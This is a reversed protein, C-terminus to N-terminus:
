EVEDLRVPMYMADGYSFFRYGQAIAHQYVRRINEGGIFASVLMLLTSEPLHFNTLLGDVMQFRYSPSIFLNTDGSQANVRGNQSASELARLSTTGICVVRGGAAKHANIVDATAKDIHYFEEHMIHANLDEERVPQFTGAGVHLTIEVRKIGREEIKALIAEDFHLGATPAAVAGAHKAYVTQYRESDLEQASRELYPPIPLEGLANLIDAWTAEAELTYLGDKKEVIQACFYQGMHITSGEKPAKSARIFARVRHESLTREVMIEVQGGSAKRGKLRAPLVRTNNMVLLDNSDLYDVFHSIQSDELAVEDLNKAKAILLRSASRRELPFRAILESPLAYFFDSKKYRHRM